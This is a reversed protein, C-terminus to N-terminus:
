PCSNTLGDGDVKISVTNGEKLDVDQVKKQSTSVDLIQYEGPNVQQTTKAPLNWQGPRTTMDHLTCNRLYAAKPETFPYLSLSQISGNLETFKTGMSIWGVTGKTYPIEIALWDSKENRGVAKTTIGTSLGAVINYTTGPGRRVFMNGSTTVSIGEAMPLLTPQPALTVPLIENFLNDTPAATTKTPAAKTKTLTAKVTRTITPETATLTPPLDTPSLTPPIVTTSIVKPQTPRKTPTKTKTGPIFSCALTTFLLAFICFIKLKNGSTFDAM